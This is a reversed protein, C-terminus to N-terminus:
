EADEMFDLWGFREPVHYQAAGTPSWALFVRGRASTDCRYINMRWCEGPKPDHDLGDLPLGWVSTLTNAEADYCTESRWGEYDWAVNVDIDGPGHYTIFADYQLNFPSVQLEKYKYLLPTDCLFVELVDQKYLPDDRNQFESLVADDEAWFGYFLMRQKDDVFMKIRTDLAPKEGTVTDSLIMAPLGEWVAADFSPFGKAHRFHCAYRNSSAM